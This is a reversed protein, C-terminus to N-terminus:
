ANNIKKRNRRIYQIFTDKSKGVFEKSKNSNISWLYEICRAQAREWFNRSDIEKERDVIEILHAVVAHNKIKQPRLTNLKKALSREYLKDSLAKREIDIKELIIKQIDQKLGRSLNQYKNIIPFNLYKINPSLGRQALAQHLAEIKFALDETNDVDIEIKAEMKQTNVSKIKISM